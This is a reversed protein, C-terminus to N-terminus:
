AQEYLEVEKRKARRLSIVRTVERRLTDVLVHVRGVLLGYAIWRPEGYDRATVPAILATSWDFDAASALSL